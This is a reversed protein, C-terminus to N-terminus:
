RAASSDRVVLKVALTLDIDYQRNILATVGLSGLETKDVAITSLSPSTMSAMEIDDFGVIAVDSPVSLGRDQILKMTMFAASDNYAFIADPPRALDLLRSVASAIGFDIEHGSLAIAELEPDALVNADFLAKRFGRQRQQISYHSLPGGIFAIRKRGTELLHRTALYAGREHDANICGFGAARQDLLIMPKGSQRLAKLLEPEFFGACLLADAEHRSLMAMVPDAPGVALFSLSVERARCANEVGHLVASFFSSAGLVTHQRHLLYCIRRVAPLQLREFDYGMDSAIKQINRRTEESIGAQNKLARSVSGISVGAAKAIERVTVSM